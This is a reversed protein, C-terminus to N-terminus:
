RKNWKLLVHFFLKENTKERTCVKMPELRVGAVVVKVFFVTVIPCLWKKV